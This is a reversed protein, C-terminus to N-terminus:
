LCICLCSNLSLYFKGSHHLSDGLNITYYKGSKAWNDPDEGKGFKGDAVTAGTTGGDPAYFLTWKTGELEDTSQVVISIPQGQDYGAENIFFTNNASVATAATSVALSIKALSKFNM